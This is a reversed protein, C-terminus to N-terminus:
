KRSQLKIEDILQELSRDYEDMQIFSGEGLDAIEGLKKTTHVNSKIGVVSTKVGKGKNKRALKLITENDEARFAGDTAVIVQNNGDDIFENRAMEYAKKFGRAGATMGGAELASISKSIQHKDAGTKNKVIVVPNAAYTIVSVQDVDRLVATLELMSAKLLDLKGKQNMSHSVDILFVVNNRRYVSEPLNADEEVIEDTPKGDIEIEPEIELETESEKNFDIRIFVTEEKPESNDPEEESDEQALLTEPKPELGIRFHNNRRNIYSATDAPFYGQADAILYYYGIPIDLESIGSRDTTLTKQLVGNEVIRVRANRISRGTSVDYVEVIFSETPSTGPPRSSFDPCAPDSRDVYLVDGKFTLIVPREM